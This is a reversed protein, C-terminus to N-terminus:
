QALKHIIQRLVEDDCGAPRAKWLQEALSLRDESLENTVVGSVRKALLDAAQDILKSDGACRVLADRAMELIRESRRFKEASSLMRVTPDLEAMEGAHRARDVEGADAFAGEAARYNGLALEADGLRARNSQDDPDEKILVQYADAARQPAGAVLYWAAVKKEVEPNGVAQPGLALLESLLEQKLGRQGLLEALEMRTQIKRIEAEDPKLGTWTGYIARHYYALADALSGTRLTLRAELLNSEGDNPSRALLETLVRSAEELKGSAILAEALRVGYGRNARQLSYAKRLPELAEPAKGQALWGAGRDYNRRAEARVEANETRALFLDASWLSAGIAVIAAILGYQLRDDHPGM